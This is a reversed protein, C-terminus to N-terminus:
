PGATLAANNTSVGIAGDPVGDLVVTGAIGSRDGCGGGSGHPALDIVLTV